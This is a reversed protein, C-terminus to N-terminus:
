RSFAHANSPNINAHLQASRTISAALPHGYTLRLSLEAGWSTRALVTTANGLFTMNEITVPLTAGIQGATSALDIREPRLMVDVLDGIQARGHLPVGDLRTGDAFGIDAMTGHLSVV